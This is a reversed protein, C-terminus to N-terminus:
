TTLNGPVFKTGHGHRNNEGCEEAAVKHEDEGAVLPIVALQEDECLRM